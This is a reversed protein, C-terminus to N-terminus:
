LSRTWPRLSKRKTVPSFSRTAPKPFCHTNSPLLYLADLVAQKEKLSLETNVSSVGQFDYCCVTHELREYTAGYELYQRFAFEWDSVIRNATNYEFAKLVSTQIFTAQHNLSKEIFFLISLRSPSPWIFGKGNKRIAWADGSYFVKDRVFPAVDELVTPSFFSDGANMFLCYDGNARRIGKNMADYIGTDPESITYDIVEQYQKIVERSGDTSAGDIVLYEYDKYTQEKVSQITRNLGERDNRNVTIITFKM